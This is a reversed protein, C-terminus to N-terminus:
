SVRQAPCSSVPQPTVVQPVSIICISLLHCLVISLAAPSPNPSSTRRSRGPKQRTTGSPAPSALLRQLPASAALCQESPQPSPLLTLSSPRTDTSICKSSSVKWAVVMGTSLSAAPPLIDFGGMDLSEYQAYLGDPTDLSPAATSSQHEEEDEADYPLGNAFDEEVEAERATGNVGNSQAHADTHGNPVRGNVAQSAASHQMQGRERARKADRKRRENDTLFPFVASTVYVNSPLTQESPPVLATHTREVDIARIPTAPKSATAADGAKYESEPESESESESSSSSSASSSSSSSASESDIDMDDDADVAMGNSQPQQAQPQAMATGPSAGNAEEHYVVRLGNVGKMSELFGKKKNRNEMRPPVPLLQTTPTITTHPQLPLSPDLRPIDAPKSVSSTVPCAVKGEAVARATSVSDGGYLLSIAAPGGAEALALM